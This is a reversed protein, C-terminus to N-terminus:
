LPSRSQSSSRKDYRHISNSSCAGDGLCGVGGSRHLRLLEIQKECAFNGFCDVCVVKNHYKTPVVTKWVDDPANFNVKAPSGCSACLSAVGGASLHFQISKTGVLQPRNSPHHDRLKMSGGQQEFTCPRSSIVRDTRFVRSM